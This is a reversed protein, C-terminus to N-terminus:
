KTLGTPIKYQSYEKLLNKGYVIRSFCEATLKADELANHAKRNDQMGCFKFINTLGMDSHDEKILFNGHIQYYKLSAITHVDFARHHLNIKFGYENAKRYIFGLDFQPNQCICNKIKTSEAWNFFNKLLEKQSQKKEDRFDEDKLGTIEYVTKKDGLINLIQDKKDIRGEQLFINKPNELELAGIQWIGCKHFNTGSTEIDLVIM